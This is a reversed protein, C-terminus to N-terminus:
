LKAAGMAGFGDQELHGRNDITQGKVGHGLFEPPPSTIVPGM